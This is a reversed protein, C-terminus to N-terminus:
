RAVYLCRCHRCYQLVFEGLYLEDDADEHEGRSCRAAQQSERTVEEARKADWWQPNEEVRVRPVMEVYEQPNESNLM